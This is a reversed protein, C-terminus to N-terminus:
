RGCKAERQGESTKSANAKAEAKTAGAAVLHWHGPPGFVYAHWRGDTMRERKM